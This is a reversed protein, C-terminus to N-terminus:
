ICSLHCHCCFRLPCVPLFPGPLIQARGPSPQDRSAMMGCASQTSLVLLPSKFCLGPSSLVRWCPNKWTLSYGARDEARFCFGLISSQETM